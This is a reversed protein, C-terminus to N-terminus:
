IGCAETDTGACLEMGVFDQRITSSLEQRHDPLLTPRIFPIRGVHSPHQNYGLHSFSLQISGSHLTTRNSFLNPLLTWLSRLSKETPDGIAFLRRM